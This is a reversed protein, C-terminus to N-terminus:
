HREDRLADFGEEIPTVAQGCYASLQAFVSQLRDMDRQYSAERQEYPVCATDLLEAATRLLAIRQRLCYDDDWNAAHTRVLPDWCERLRRLVLFHRFHDRVPQQMYAKETLPRFKPVLARGSEDLEECRAHLWDFLEVMYGYLRKLRAGEHPYPPLPEEANREM